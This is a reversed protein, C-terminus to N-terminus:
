VLNYDRWTDNLLGSVMALEESEIPRITGQHAVDMKKYVALGPMTLTRHLNFGLSKFLGM